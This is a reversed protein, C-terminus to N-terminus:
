KIEKSRRTRRMSEGKLEIRHATHVLRDLIADALTPDGIYEHWQAVPLQATIALSACGTRDEIVEFLDHRNRPTLPAMGWDDLILLRVKALQARLKPLSGDERAIEFEELLRVFRKYLVPMGLRIAQNGLACALWTKGVGTPGTIILHQNQVIWDCSLLSGIRQKDLGRDSRYDIDEPCAAAKFKANTALRMLRKNERANKEADVLMSFRDDFSLEQLSANSRQHEFAAAMGGLRLSRLTALTNEILM